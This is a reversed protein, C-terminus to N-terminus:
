RAPVDTAGEDVPFADATNAPDVPTELPRALERWRGYDGGGTALQPTGRKWKPERYEAWPMRKIRTDDVKLAAERAADPKLIAVWRDKVSQVEGAKWSGNGTPTPFLRHWTPAWLWNCARYLAGTHGVSPDSYSVVTTTPFDRRLVAQCAKWQKSGADPGGTLCWRVLEFWTAPLNRATPQAFAMVGFDDEYMLVVRNSPGLYHQDELLVNPPLRDMPLASQKM